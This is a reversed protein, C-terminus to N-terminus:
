VHVHSIVYMRAHGRMCMSVHEIGCVRMCAPVHVSERVPIEEEEERGPAHEALIEAVMAVIHFHTERWAYSYGDDTCFM